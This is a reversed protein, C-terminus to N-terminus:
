IDFGAPDRILDRAREDSLRAGGPQNAAAEYGLADRLEREREAMGGRVQRVFDGLGAVPDSPRYRGGLRYLGYAAAGGALAALGLTLQRGTM